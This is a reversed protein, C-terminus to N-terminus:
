RSLHHHREFAELAAPSMADTERAPRHAAGGPLHHRAAFRAADAETWDRAHGPPDADADPPDAPTAPAASM